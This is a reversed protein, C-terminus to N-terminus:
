LRPDSYADPAQPTKRPVGSDVYTYTAAWPYKRSIQAGFIGLGGVINSYINDRLYISSLDSSQQIEMFYYAEQLYKDYDTSPTVCFIYGKEDAENEDAYGWKGVGEACYDGTFNGSIWFSQAKNEPLRIFSKYLPKGALVPYLEMQCANYFSEKFPYGPRVEQLKYPNPVDMKLPVYIEHGAANDLGTVADTCIRDAIIHSGSEQSYNMATIWVPSSCGFLIYFTEHMPYPEDEPWTRDPLWEPPIVGPSPGSTWGSWPEIYGEFHTYTMSKIPAPESPMQQEAHILDYGPVQVELRYTHGPIASYALTWDGNDTRQFEGVKEVDDYLIAVAETLHPAESRSAGKTFSLELTQEPGDNLVCVAVVQPSEEADMTVNRVCSTCSLIYVLLSTIFATGKKM